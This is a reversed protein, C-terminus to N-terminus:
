LHVKWLIQFIEQLSGNVNVFHQCAPYDDEVWDIGIVEVSYSSWLIQQWSVFHTLFSYQNAM